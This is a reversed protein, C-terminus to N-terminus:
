AVRRLKIDLIYQRRIGVVINNNHVYYLGSCHEDSHNSFNIRNLMSKAQIGIM